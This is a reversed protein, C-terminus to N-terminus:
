LIALRLAAILSFMDLVEETEGYLKMMAVVKAELMDILDRSAVRREYVSM